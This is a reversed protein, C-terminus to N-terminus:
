IGEQSTAADKVCVYLELNAANELFGLDARQSFTASHCWLAPPAETQM